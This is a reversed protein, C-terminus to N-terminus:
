KAAKKRLRAAEKELGQRIATAQIGLVRGRVADLAPRMFPQPKLMRGTPKGWAVLRHGFEVLHAHAGFPWEPGVATAIIGLRAMAASSPWKSSPRQTISKFLDKKRSALRAQTKASHLKATGTSKSRPVRARMEKITERGAQAVAKRIHKRQLSPTLERFARDLGPVGTVVFVAQINAM